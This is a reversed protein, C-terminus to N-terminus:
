SPTHVEPESPLQPTQQHTELCIDCIAFALNEARSLWPVSSGVPARHSQDATELIVWQPWRHLGRFPSVRNLIATGLSSAGPFSPGAGIIKAQIGWGKNATQTRPKARIDLQRQLQKWPSITGDRDWPCSWDMPLRRHCDREKDWHIPIAPPEM